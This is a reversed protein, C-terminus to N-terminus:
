LLGINGGAQSIWLRMANLDFNAKLIKIGADDTIEVGDVHTLLKDTLEGELQLNTGNSNVFLRKWIKKSDAKNYDTDLITNFDDVEIVPHSQTDDTYARVTLKGSDTYKVYFDIYGIKINLGQEVFPNFAKTKFKFKKIVALSGGGTYTGAIPDSTDFIGLTNATIPAVKYFKDKDYGTVGCLNSLIVLHTIELTLNHNTCTLIKNATDFAVVDLSPSDVTLRNLLFLFGRQNGGMVIPNEPKTIKSSWKTHIKSWTKGIKSWKYELTDQYIGLATYHDNFISYAGNKYNFVMMKNPFTVTGDSYAFYLFEDIYDNVSNVRERGESVNGTLFVQDPIKEDIRKVTTGDTATIAKDGFTIGNGNVLQTSHQSESGFENTVDRFVFPQQSNGTYALEKVGREFWVILKGNVVLASIIDQNLTGDIYGGHGIKDSRFSDVHTPDGATSWRARNSYTSGEEITGLFVLRSKFSIIIKCGNLYRDSGDNYIIPRLTAWATENHYKIGDNNVTGALSYTKGNTVWFYRLGTATLWFNHSDFFQSNSGTWAQNVTMLEDFDKATQNFIYATNQDFVITDEVNVTSTERLKIGMVPQLPYYDYAATLAGTAISFTVDIAGTLYNISNAGSVDLDAGTFKGLGNDTATQAGATLKLTREAVPLKAMTHTYHTAGTGISEGAVAKKLRGLLEPCVRKKVKDRYIYLNTLEEFADDLIKWPDVNKQLGTKYDTIFFPKYDM